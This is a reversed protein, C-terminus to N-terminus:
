RYEVMVVKATINARPILVDAYKNNDGKFTAISCNDDNCAVLRHVVSMNGKNFTYIAGLQLVDTDLVKQQYLIDGCDLTLGMSNTKCGVNGITDYLAVDGTTVDIMVRETSQALVWVSCVGLLFSAFIMGLLFLVMQMDNLEKM